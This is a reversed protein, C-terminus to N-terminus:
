VDRLSAGSELARDFAELMGASGSQEVLKRAHQLIEHQPDVPGVIKVMVVPAEEPSTEVQISQVEM